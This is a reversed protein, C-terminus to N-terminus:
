LGGLFFQQRWRKTLWFLEKHIKRTESWEGSFTEDTCPAWWIHNISFGRIWVLRTRHDRKKVLVEYGWGLFYKTGFRNSKIRNYLINYLTTKNSIVLIQKTEDKFFCLHLPYSSIIDKFDRSHFFLWKLDRTWDRKEVSSFMNKNFQINTPQFPKTNFRTIHTVM